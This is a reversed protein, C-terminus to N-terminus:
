LWYLAFTTGPMMWIKAKDNWNIILLSASSYHFLEVFKYVDEIDMESSSMSTTDMSFTFDNGSVSCLGKIFAIVLKSRTAYDDCYFLISEIYYSTRRSNTHAYFTVDQGFLVGERTDDEDWKQALENKAKSGKFTPKKLWYSVFDKLNSPLRSITVNGYKETLYDYPSKNTISCGFLSVSIVLVMALAAIRKFDKM